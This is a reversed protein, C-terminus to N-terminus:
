VVEIACSEINSFTIQKGLLSVDSSGITIYDDSLGIISTCKASSTFVGEDDTTGIEIICGEIPTNEINESIATIRLVRTDDVASLYFDNVFESQKPYFIM